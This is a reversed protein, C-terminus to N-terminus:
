AGTVRSLPDSWGFDRVGSYLAHRAADAAHPKGTLLHVNGLLALRKSTAWPKVMAATRFRAGGIARVAGVLDATGGGNRRSARGRLVFDECALHMEDGAWEQYDRIEDQISQADLGPTQGVVALSLVGGVNQLLAFGTTGGPDIGLITTM